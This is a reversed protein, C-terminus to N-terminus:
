PWETLSSPYRRTGDGSAGQPIRDIVPMPYPPAVTTFSNLVVGNCYGTRDHEAIEDALRDFADLVGRLAQRFTQPAAWLDELTAKVAKAANLAAELSRIDDPDVEPVPPLNSLRVIPGRLARIAGDVAGGINPTGVGNHFRRLKSLAAMWERIATLIPTYRTEWPEMIEIIRAARERPKTPLDIEPEGQERHEAVIVNLVERLVLGHRVMITINAWDVTFSAKGEPGLPAELEPLPPIGDIVVPEVFDVDGTKPNYKLNRIDEALKSKPM